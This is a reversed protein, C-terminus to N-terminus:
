TKESHGNTGRSRDATSGPYRQLFSVNEAMLLMVSVLNALLAGGSLSVMIMTITPTYGQHSIHVAYTWVLGAAILELDAALSTALHVAGTHTRDRFKLATAILSVLVAAFLSYVNHLTPDDLDGIFFGFNLSAALLVFFGFTVARLNM